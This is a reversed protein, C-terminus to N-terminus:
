SGTNIRQLEELQSLSVDYPVVEKMKQQLYFNIAPQVRIANDINKDSGQSYAGISILDKNQYYTSYSQRISQSM